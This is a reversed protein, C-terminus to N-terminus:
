NKKTAPEVTAAPAKVNLGKLASELADEEENCGLLKASAIFKSLQQDDGQATKSSDQSPSVQNRKNKM